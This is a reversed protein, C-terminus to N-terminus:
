QDTLSGIFLAVSAGIAIAMWLPNSYLPQLMAQFKEFVSLVM